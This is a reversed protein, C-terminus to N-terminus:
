NRIFPIRGMREMLSLKRRGSLSELLREDAARPEKTVGPCTRDEHTALSAGCPCFGDRTIYGYGQSRDGCPGTYKSTKDKVSIGQTQEWAITASCRPKWIREPAQTELYCSQVLLREDAARPNKTAGPCIRDEHTALSAGCPCFGDHTIYGYGQSWDGRPGTYKSTKDKVSIGQTQEWAITASCRPKWIRESAQTELYGIFKHLVTKAISQPTRFVACWETLMSKPTIGRLLDSVNWKPNKDRDPAPSGSHVARAGGISSFGRVHDADRPPRWHILVPRPAQRGNDVARQHERKRAANYNNTAQVGWEDIKGMAEKWITTTTEATSSCNWVHENDEKELECQRCLCTPYLNPKRAQMSNLTPLMGHLKKVHHTRQHSDKSNSYFTFVARRDHVHALTSTWEVDDIDPIARKVRRQSTWAQHHRITTQQKLLQRLDIEVLAGYCHAFSTIDAQQTLDVKLPVTASQAAAKAAQDALENGQINSHGKIWAVEVGGPRSEVVQWLVAWIGAYTSRFRKRPLADRRNKVLRQYQDVVSENDLKVVIDQEPPASLVAVLLGILESKASSAHGDTRGQVTLPNEQALDVVGFALVLRWSPPAITSGYFM